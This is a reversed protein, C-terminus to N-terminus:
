FGLNKKFGFYTALYYIFYVFLFLASCTIYIVIYQTNSMLFNGFVKNLSWTVLFSIVLPYILPFLFFLLLQCRITKFISQKNLGLKLLVQYRYRYNTADSLAQIALIAGVVTTFIFALYFLSFSLITTMSQNDSLVKGRVFMNSTMYCISEGTQDDKQCIRHSSLSTLKTHLKEDTDEKTDIILIDDNKELGDVAKDPVILVYGSGYGYVMAYLKKDFVKKQLSVGNSLVINDLISVEQLASFLESACSLYYEDELLTIPKENRLQLLHNFDSLKIVTDYQKWPRQSSPIQEYIVGNDNKYDEYIFSERITYDEEVAELYKPFESNAENVYIDYPTLMNTQQQLLENFLTSVNLSVFTFVVLLSLTGLTFAMTNIKSTFQRLIFLRNKEFLFKKNKLFFALLLNGFTLSVGYISLILFITIGILLVFNPEVGVAFQQDFLWLAVGGVILSVCFLIKMIWPHSIKPQENRKDLALLDYIKMKRIRRYSWFLVLIYIVIFYVFSLLVPTSLDSTLTVQYPQNFVNMILYSILHGFVFGVFFSLLLSLFGLLINELLFMKTIDKKEIGLVMYTGFEKSRKQFMFKITYNILYSLVFVVIVNVFIMATQFNEMSSSLQLIDKANSILNFSFMLAFALTITIIYIAYDQFSRKINRFALKALM